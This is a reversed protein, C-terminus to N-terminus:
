RENTHNAVVGTQQPNHMYTQIQSVHTVSFLLHMTCWRTIQQYMIPQKAPPSVINQHIWEYQALWHVWDEHIPYGLSNSTHLWFMPAKRITQKPTSHSCKQQTAVGQRRPGM